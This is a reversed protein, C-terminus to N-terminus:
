RGVRQSPPSQSTQGMQSSGAPNQSIQREVQEAAKEQEDTIVPTLCSRPLARLLAQTQALSKDNPMTKGLSKARQQLRNFETASAVPPQALQKKMSPSMQAAREKAVQVRSALTPHDSLYKGIGADSKDFGKDIMQQFFDGFRDPNYGARVYFEYGLKDAEAEDGRTFGANVLQGAAAAGGAALGAYTQRNDEDGLAYGAAGAGLALAMAGYQRNMGKQVHRAYVHGFEHAMVAALEDETKAQEFLETYIYMHNGGTTFANLTDSNVFHFQMGESFMWSADESKHSEPGYGQQDMERAAAIIRDGVRQIYGSLVPDTVVAPKLSNHAETAQSIVASDSVCGGLGGGAVLLMLGALLRGVTRKMSM